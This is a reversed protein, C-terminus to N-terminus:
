RASTGAVDNQPFVNESTITIQATAQPTAPTQIRAPRSDLETRLKSNEEILTMFQACLTDMLLEAAMLKQTASKIEDRILGSQRNLFVRYAESRNSLIASM